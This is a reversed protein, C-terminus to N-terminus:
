LPGECCCAHAAALLIATYMFGGLAGILIDAARDKWDKM